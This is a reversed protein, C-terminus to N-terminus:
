TGGEPGPCGLLGLSIERLAPVPGEYLWLVFQDDSAGRGTDGGIAQGQSELEGFGGFAGDDNYVHISQGWGGPLHAPEEVYPASPNNFFNRILLYGHGPATEHLYGARGFVHAAKLGVKYRRAGTIALRVHGNTMRCLEGSPEYYEVPEVYPSAPVLVAGGPNIQLSDWSEAAIRNPELDTLRIVLEFGAFRVGAMRGTHETTGRLPDAVLRVTKELRLRKRGAALNYAELNLEQSLRCEGSPLVELAYAGPDVQEPVHLTGWFDSRDRVGFQIEPAIWTRQGGVNWEGDALLCAFRGADGWAAHLWLTSEAGEDLFPGLVRGGREMVVISAGAQLPVRAYRLCNEELRSVVQPLTIHNNM